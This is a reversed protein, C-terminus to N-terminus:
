KLMESEILSDMVNSKLSYNSSKGQDEKDCIDLMWMEECIEKTLNYSVKAESYLEWPNAQMMHYLTRIVNLRQPNISDRGVRTIKSYDYAEYLNLMNALKTLQKVLRTGIEPEPVYLIKHMRDRPIETRMLAVMDALARIKGLDPEMIDPAGMETALERYENLTTTVAHRIEQRAIEEHTYNEQSRLVSKVRDQRIRISLFREGLASNIARFQDIASTVAGIVGFRGKFIQRKHGSGHVAAYEGDYAARLQSFINDAGPIAAQLMVTLDKIILIKGDLDGIIGWQDGSGPLKLGSILSKSSLTDTAYVHESNSFGEVLATKGSGSPGIVLLWIPDGPFLIGLATAMVVDSPVMDDISYWKHIAKHIDERSV